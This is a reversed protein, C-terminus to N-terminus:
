KKSKSNSKMKYKDNTRTIEQVSCQIYQTESKTQINLHKNKIFKFVSAPKLCVFKRKELYIQGKVNLSIQEPELDTASLYLDLHLLLDISIPIFQVFSIEM